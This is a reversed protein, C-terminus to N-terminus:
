ADLRALEDARQRGDAGAEAAGTQGSGQLCDFVVGQGPGGYLKRGWPVANM